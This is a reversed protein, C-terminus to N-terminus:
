QSARADLERQYRCAAADAVADADYGAPAYDPEDFSRSAELAAIADATLVDVAWFWLGGLQVHTIVFGDEPDDMCAVTFDAGHLNCDFQRSVPPNKVPRLLQDHASM